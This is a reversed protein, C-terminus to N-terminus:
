KSSYMVPAKDSSDPRFHLAHRRHDSVCTKKKTKGKKKNRLGQNSAGHTKGALTPNKKEKRKKEREGGGHMQKFIGTGEESHANKLEDTNLLESGTNNASSATISM